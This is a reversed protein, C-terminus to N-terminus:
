RCIDCESETIEVSDDSMLGAVVRERVPDEVTKSVLKGLEVRSAVPAGKVLLSGGDSKVVM